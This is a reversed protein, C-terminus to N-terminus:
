SLPRYPFAPPRADDALHAVSHQERLMLFVQCLGSLDQNGTSPRLLLDKFAVTGGWCQLAAM